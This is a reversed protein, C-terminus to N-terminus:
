KRLKDKMEGRIIHVWIQPSKKKFRVRDLKKDVM